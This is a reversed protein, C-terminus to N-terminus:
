SNSSQAEFKSLPRESGLERLLVYGISLAILLSGLAGKLDPRWGHLHHRLAAGWFCETYILPAVLSVPAWALARDLLLLLLFGLVGIAMMELMAAPSPTRWVFPMLFTLALFVWFATHFLNAETAESRMQRTLITYFAYCAGMGLPFLLARRLELAPPGLMLWAGALGLLAAVWQVMAVREGLVVAAVALTLPVSVWNISWVLRPDLGHRLALVFCVPMALMLSSRFMQRGLRPTRVLRAGQSPGLFVLMLLLHTGYRVWVTEFPSYRWSIFSGIYELAAWCLAVLLMLVIGLRRARSEPTPFGDIWHWLRM